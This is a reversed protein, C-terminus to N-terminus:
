NHGGDTRNQNREHMASYIEKQMYQWWPADLEELSRPVNCGPYTKTLYDWVDEITFDHKKPPKPPPCAQVALSLQRSLDLMLREPSHRRSSYPPEKSDISETQYFEVLSDSNKKNLDAVSLSLARLVHPRIAHVPLQFCDFCVRIWFDIDEGNPVLPSPQVSSETISQIVPADDTSSVRTVAKAIRTDTTGHADGKEAGALPLCIKYVNSGHRGKNRFVKLEGDRQLASLWRRVNRTSMRTRRALTPVAPWAIGDANAYDAIALLVVLAGSKQQKSYKWVANTLQISV